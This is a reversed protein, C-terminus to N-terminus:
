ISTCFLIFILQVKGLEEYSINKLIETLVELPLFLLPNKRKRETSDQIELGSEEDKKNLKRRKSRTYYGLQVDQDCEESMADINNDM